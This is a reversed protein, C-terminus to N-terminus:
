ASACAAAADRWEFGAALFIKDLGRKPKRSSARSGPVILAQKINKAVHKGEVFHAAARLDDLRSNTCSRHCATWPIDVISGIQPGHIQARERHSEPRQSKKFRPARARYAQSWAPIPAGLSKRLLRSPKCSSRRTLTPAAMARLCSGASSPKQFAKARRFLRRGELYAFTTEDPAIMGARAGGEITM